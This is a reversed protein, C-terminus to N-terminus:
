ILLLNITGAAPLRVQQKEDWKRKIGVFKAKLGPSLIKAWYLFSIQL